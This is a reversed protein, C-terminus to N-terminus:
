PAWRKARFDELQGAKRVRRGEAGINALMNAVKNVDRRVPCFSVTPHAIVLRRLIELRSALRWSSSVKETTKRNALQKAMQILINSDGEIITLLWGERIM